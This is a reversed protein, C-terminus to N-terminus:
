ASEGEGDSLLSPDIAFRSITYPMVDGLIHKSTIERAEDGDRRELADLLSQHFERDIKASKERQELTTNEEIYYTFALEWIQKLIKALYPRGASRIAIWHFEHNAERARRISEEDSGVGTLPLLERMRALEDTTIKEAAFQMALGELVSRILYIEELDEKSLRVVRAHKHPTRTALGLAVLQALAERVTRQDVGLEEALRLQNLPAGPALRGSVIADRIRKRALDTKSAPEPIAGESDLLRESATSM